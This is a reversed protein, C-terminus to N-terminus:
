YIERRWAFYSWNEKNMQYQEYIKRQGLKERQFLREESGQLCLKLIHKPM